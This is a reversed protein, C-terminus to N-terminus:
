YRILKYDIKQSPNLRYTSYSSLGKQVSTFFDLQKKVADATGINQLGTVYSLELDPIKLATYGSVFNKSFDDFSSQANAFHGLSLACLLLLFLKIPPCHM